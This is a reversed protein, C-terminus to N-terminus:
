LEKCMLLRRVYKNASRIVYDVADPHGLLAKACEVCRLLSMPRPYQVTCSAEMIDWIGEIGGAEFFEIMWATDAQKIQKKVAPLTRPERLAAVCSEPDNYMSMSTPDECLSRFADKLRLQALNLPIDVESM